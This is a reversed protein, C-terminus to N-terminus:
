GFSKRPKWSKSARYIWKWLGVVKCTIHIGSVLNEMGGIKVM